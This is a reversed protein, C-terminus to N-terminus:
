DGKYLGLILRVEGVGLGLNKAIAVSDRGQEYLRIIEDKVNIEKEAAETDATKQGAPENAAAQAAQASSADMSAEQEPSLEKQSAAGSFPKQAAQEAAAAQAKQNQVQITAQNKLQELFGNTIEEEQAKLDSLQQTLGSTFDTLETHKDNLMSYLFMIENHTKNMKEIVTDSYENIAMIKENTQKELARETREKSADITDEVIDVVRQKSNELERELMLGMEEKSLESIHQLEDPSLKEAVWFSALIFGMGAILLVIEIITM